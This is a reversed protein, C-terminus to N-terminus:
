YNYNSALQKVLQKNDNNNNYTSYCYSHQIYLQLYIRSTDWYGLITVIIYPM